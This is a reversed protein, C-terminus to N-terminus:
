SSILRIVLPFYAVGTPVYPKMKIINRKIPPFIALMDVIKSDELMIESFKTLNEDTTPFFGAGNYMNRKMGENWWWGSSEGKVYKWIKHDGYKIGLYNSICGLENAGYKAIMCPNAGNILDYICGSADANSLLPLPPNVPAGFLLGYGHRLCKLSFSVFSNM